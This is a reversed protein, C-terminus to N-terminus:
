FRIKEFQKKINELAKPDHISIKQGKNILVKAIELSPSADIIDTNPKYSAGLISIKNNHSHSLALNAIHDIHKQNLIDIIQPLELKCGHLDGALSFARNDRPLCPGGYSMAGKLFHKGIRRDLAIANTVIDVDGGTIKECLRALSNAFSIKMTLYSNVAIKAIEANELSMCKIKSKEVFREYIQALIEGSKNDSEGILVFDPNLFDNIVSGLAIFEPNYCVGFDQNIKKGSSSELVPIVENRIADPMITCTIAIVHYEQKKRLCEGLKKCAPILQETSFSGDEKSPTNVVVFTVDTHNISNDFSESITIKNKYKTLFEELNEEYHFSKGQKLLEARKKDIEIGIVNFNKSALSVMMSAGLKGLGIISINNM